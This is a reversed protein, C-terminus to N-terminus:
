QTLRSCEEEIREIKDEWNYHKLVYERAWAGLEPDDRDFFGEIAEKLAEPSSDKALLRPDLGGLVEPTAGVPTGVVPLGSALAEQTVLGFGELARTPLVFLDAAQYYVPIDKEAIYGLLRVNNELGKERILGELSELLSGRGGVLLLIDPYRDKLSSVAEILRDIGMRPELRRLTFLVKKNEPIKLARRAESRDGPRFTETDVGPPIRVIKDAASPEFDKALVHVFESLLIIKRCGQFISRELIQLIKSLLWTKLRSAGRFKQEDEVELFRMMTLFYIAPKRTWRNALCAAYGSVVHFVHIEDFNERKELKRVWRFVNVITGVFYIIGRRAWPNYRVFRMGGIEEEQKKDSAYRGTLVTVEHGREKLRRAVEYAYRFSVSEEDPFIWGTVVLIRITKWGRV